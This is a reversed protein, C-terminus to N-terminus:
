VAAAVGEVIVLNSTTTEQRDVAIEQYEPDQVFALAHQKSPFELVVMRAPSWDGEVSTVEGGRVLYKGEHKAVFHPAREVYQKYREPDRVTIDGVIYAKM